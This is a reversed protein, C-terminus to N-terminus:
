RGPDIAIGVPTTLGEVAGVEHGDPNVVAIRRARPVVVWANGTNPDVAVERAEPYGNLALEITGDMRLALLRGAVAEAVWVRNRTGDVAIGIPGRFGGFQDFDLGDASLRMIVGQEFSTIWADRTVPHISIRSPRPTDVTRRRVGSEDFVQVQRAGNDCVWVSGDTGDVAVAIPLGFPGILPPTDPLGDRTFHRVEGQFEDCVWASADRPDLGVAIPKRFGGLIARTGFLLLVVEGAFSDTVWVRGDFPDVAIAGPSDFGREALVVHRGDASLLLAESTGGDTAWPRLRGPTAYDEAVIPSIQEDIIFSMKYDYRLDNQVNTDLFTTQSASIHNVLVRYVSDGQARRQLHYGTLDVGVPAQWRLQVYASGAIAKFGAPRGGTNPNLPDFPNARERESCGGLLIGLALLAAVPRM